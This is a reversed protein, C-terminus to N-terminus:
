LTYLKRNASESVVVPRETTWAASQQDANIQTWFDVGSARNVAPCEGCYKGGDGYLSHQCAPMMTFEGRITRIVSLRSWTCNGCMPYNEMICKGFRYLRGEYATEIVEYAM